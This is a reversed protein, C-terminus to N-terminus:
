APFVPVLQIPNLCALLELPVWLFTQAYCYYFHTLNHKDQIELREIITGNKKAFLLQVRNNHQLPSCMM